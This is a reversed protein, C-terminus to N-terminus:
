GFYEPENGPKWKINCGMSPVQNQPSAKGELLSNIANKLDEGTIAQGNKPRSRDFQGRYYLKLDKDFLFFDPTCAARYSKAVEQTEDYCYPFFWKKEKALRRMFEPADQPYSKIDNSSVAIFVVGQSHYDDYVAKFHDRIHIVYPCHNSIFFVLTGNTGRAKSLSIENSAVTDLLTFEPAMTGLPLMQSEVSVM